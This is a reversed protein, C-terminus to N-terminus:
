FILIIGRFKAWQIIKDLPGVNGFLNTVIVGDAFMPVLDLNISLSNQNLDVIHSGQLPGQISSPFTFSQTCYNLSKNLYLNIGSVLCHLALSGNATAIVCRDEDINLLDFFFAELRKVLPGGNTMQGTEYSNKLLRQIHDFDSTKKNIWAM